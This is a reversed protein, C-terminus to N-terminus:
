QYYTISSWLGWTQALVYWCLFICPPPSDHHVGCGVVLMLVSVFFFMRKAWNGNKKNGMRFPSSHKIILPSGANANLLIYSSASCQAGASMARQKKGEKGGQSCIHFHITIKIKNIVMSTSTSTSTSPRPRSLHYYLPVVGANASLIPFPPQASTPGLTNNRNECQQSNIDLRRNLAWKLTYHTGIHVM